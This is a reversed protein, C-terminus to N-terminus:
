ARQLSACAWGAFVGAGITAMSGAATGPRRQGSAAGLGIWLSRRWNIEDVSQGELLEVSASMTGGGGAYLCGGAFLAMVVPWLENPTTSPIRIQLSVGLSAFAPLGPSLAWEM